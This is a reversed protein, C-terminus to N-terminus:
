KYPTRGLSWCHVAIFVKIMNLLGVVKLLQKLTRYTMVVLAHVYVTIFTLNGISKHRLFHTPFVVNYLFNISQVFNYQTYVYQCERVYLPMNNLKTTIPHHCVIPHIFSISAKISTSFYVVHLTASTNNHVLM